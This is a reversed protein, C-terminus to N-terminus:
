QIDKKRVIRWDGKEKKCAILVSTESSHQLQYEFLRCTKGAFSFEGLINLSKASRGIAGKATVARAKVSAKDKGASKSKEPQLDEMTEINAAGTSLGSFGSAVPPPTTEANLEALIIKQSKTSVKSGNEVAEAILSLPFPLAKDVTKAVAAKKAAVKKLAAKKEAVATELAKAIGAIKSEAAAFQREHSQTPIYNAGIAGIAVGVALSAAILFWSSRRPREPSQATEPRRDHKRITEILHDPPPEQLIDAFKDIAARTERFEEVKDRARPDNALALEVERREEEGLESDVFAMLTQDDFKKM